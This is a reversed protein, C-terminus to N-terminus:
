KVIEFESIIDGKFGENQIEYSKIGFMPNTEKVDFEKDTYNKWSEIEEADLVIDFNKFNEIITEISVVKIKM